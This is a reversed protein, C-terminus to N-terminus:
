LKHIDCRVRRLVLLFCLFHLLGFFLKGFSYTCCASKYLGANFLIITVCSYHTFRRKTAGKLILLKIKTNATNYHKQPSLPYLTHIENLVNTEFFAAVYSNCWVKPRLYIQIFFVTKWNDCLIFFM